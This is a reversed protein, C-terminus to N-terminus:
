RRAGLNVALNRPDRLAAPLNREGFDITSRRLARGAADVVLNLRVNRFFMVCLWQGADEGIGEYLRGTIAGARMLDQVASAEIGFSIAIAEADVEFSAVSANM